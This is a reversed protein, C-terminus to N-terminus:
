LPKRVPQFGTNGQMLMLPYAPKQETPVEVYNAAIWQFIEAGYDAAFSRYGYESPDSRRVIVLYDPPQEQLARLIREQGFMLVEPPMLNIYATPNPRRALYNLMVGEPVCALTASEPLRSLEDLMLAVARGRRDAPLKVPDAFFADAGTGVVTEKAAYVTGFIYLHVFVFLGVVPLLVARTAAGCGGRRDVAGPLWSLGASVTMLTAPMALAFGYHYARVNFLIKALLVAAFVALMAALTSRTDRRRRLAMVTWGVALLPVVVTLGRLSQQWANRPVIQFAVIAGLTSTLGVAGIWWASRHRGLFMGACGALAVLSAYCITCWFIAAASDAFDFTGLTRRYFDMGTVAPDFVYMWSGLVGRLAERAPMAIWLLVFALLPPVLAGLVLSGLSKTVRGRAGVAAGVLLSLAAALFVEAKTLFVMGLAVGTAVLWAGKERERYEPLPHPHPNWGSTSSDRGLCLIGVLSMVIGHTVEHSYPTVWNYNGIGVLQIFGFVTLLVVCACTATFPDGIRSWLRWVLWVLLALILLNVIVISRLSVGLVRFVLANFYPSLPGNFYAIDRYLVRGETIQWPVYLERGFDVIPDPWTFWSWSLM